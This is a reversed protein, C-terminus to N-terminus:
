PCTAQAVRLRFTLWDSRGKGDSADVFMDYDGATAARLTAVPGNVTFAPDPLTDRRKTVFWHYTLPDGDLDSAAVTMTATDCTTISLGPQIDVDEIVPAHNFGVSIHAAGNPFMPRCHVTGTVEVTTRVPVPIFLIQGSCERVENGFADLPQLCAGWREAPLVFTTEVTPGTIPVIKEALTIAGPCPEGADPNMIRVRLSALRDFGPTQLVLRLQGTETESAPAL